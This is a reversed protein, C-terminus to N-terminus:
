TNRSCRRTKHSIVKLGLITGWSHAALFIKDKNFRERLYDTLEITDLVFQSINMTSQPINKHYSKGTGRQDWFVLIFNKVLEKTNTAITYDRSRSSVGPLPMSPGGHLFLLVPNSIEEAQILIFQEIEGIIVKEVASIGNVNIEFDHKRSFLNM